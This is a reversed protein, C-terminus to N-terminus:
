RAESGEWRRVPLDTPPGHDQTGPPPYDPRQNEPPLLGGKETGCVCTPMHKEDCWQKNFSGSLWSITPAKKGKTKHKFFLFFWM